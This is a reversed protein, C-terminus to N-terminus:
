SRVEEPPEVASYDARELLGRWTVGAELKLERLEEFLDRDVVIHAKESDRNSM